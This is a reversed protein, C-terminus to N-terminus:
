VRLWHLRDQTAIYSLNSTHAPLRHEDLNQMLWEDTCALPPVLLHLRVFCSLWIAPYFTIQRPEPGM